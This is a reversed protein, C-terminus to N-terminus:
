PTEGASLTRLYRYIAGLDSETMRAYAEWPMPSAPQVRKTVRFREIFEQETFQSMIGATIPTLNPTVFTGEPEELVLGGAFAPGTFGGTLKSRQTHCGHCNAVTHALYRGYEATREPPLQSPPPKTPGQRNLLFNVGLTGLLSLRHPAAPRSVPPVTRLYSVIARLDDDALDTFSMIPVLPKSHRSIGYRLSRVLTDDSLGGIGTAVDSTINPAVLTGLVGLAFSRGGSLPTEQGQRVENERAPDGHCSSCHAPGYVLYRGREIVKPDTSAHIGPNAPRVNVTTCSIATVTVVGIVAIAM